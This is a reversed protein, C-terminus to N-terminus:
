LLTRSAPSFPWSWCLLSGALSDWPRTPFPCPPGPCPSAGSLLRSWLPRPGPSAPLPSRRRPACVFAALPLAQYECPSRASDMGAARLGLRAFRAPGSDERPAADCQPPTRAPTPTALGNQEQTSSGRAPGSRPRAGAHEQRSRAGGSGCRSRVLARPPRPKRKDWGGWSWLAPRPRARGGPQPQACGGAPHEGQGGGAGLTGPSAQSQLEKSTTRQVTPRSPSAM